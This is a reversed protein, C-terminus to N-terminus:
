NDSVTVLSFQFYTYEPTFTPLLDIHNPTFPNTPLSSLLATYHLTYSTSNIDYV